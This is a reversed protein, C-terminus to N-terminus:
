DAWIRSIKILSDAQSSIVQKNAGEKPVTSGCVNCFDTRYGTPKSWSAICNEGKIWRFESDKVLTALNYGVGSQKRCLSCHCRYFVAPKHTLEFEITGCLCSGNM